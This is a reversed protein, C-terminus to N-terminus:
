LSNKSDLVNKINRFTQNLLIEKESKAQLHNFKQFAETYEPSLGKSVEQIKAKLSAIDNAVLPAFDEQLDLYVGPSQKYDKIDETLFLFPKDLFSFDFVISSYDTILLDAELLQQDYSKTKEIIVNSEYIPAKLSVENHHLRLNVISDPFCKAIENAITNPDTLSLGRRRGEPWTPAYMITYSRLDMKSMEKTSSISAHRLSGSEQVNGKYKFATRLARTEYPGSTLLLDWQSAEKKLLKAYRENSLQGLRDNGLKKIPTGHWVQIYSQHERKSFYRPFELNNILLKSTGLYYAFKLGQKKLLEPFKDQVNGLRLFVEPPANLALALDPFNEQFNEVLVIVGSDLAKGHHMSFMARNRLPLARFLLYLPAMLFIQLRSSVWSWNYLRKGSIEQDVQRTYLDVMM